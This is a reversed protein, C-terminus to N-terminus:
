GCADRGEHRDFAGASAAPRQDKWVSLREHHYRLGFRIQSDSEFTTRYDVEATTSLDWRRSLRVVFEAGIGLIGALVARDPEKHREFGADLLLGLGLRRYIMTIPVLSLGVATVRQGGGERFGLLFEAWGYSEDGIGLPGYAIRPGHTSPGATDNASTWGMTIMGQPTPDGEWWYEASEEADSPPERTGEAGAAPCLPTMAGVLGLLLLTLYRLRM